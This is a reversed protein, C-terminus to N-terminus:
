IYCAGRMAYTETFKSGVPDVRQRKSYDLDYGDQCWEWVNGHMDYLGFDNPEFQGVPALQGVYGDSTEIFSTYKESVCEISKRQQPGIKYQKGAARVFLDGSAANNIINLRNTGILNPEYYTSDGKWRGDDRYFSLRRGQDTTLYEWKPDGGQEQETFYELQLDFPTKTASPGFRRMEGKPLVINERDSKLKLNDFGSDNQVVITRIINNDDNYKYTPYLGTTGDGGKFTISEVTAACLISVIESGGDWSVVVDFQHYQARNPVNAFRALEDIDDGFFFRDDSGARCAYEWEAQTPLRVTRGEKKTLWKCFAQADEWSVITVPFNDSAGVHGSNDWSTAAEDTTPLIPSERLTGREVSTRYDTDEAFQRFQGITVEHIGMYFPKSIEVGHRPYSGDSSGDEGPFERKIDEPSDKSGMMFEGAPIISFGMGISNEFWLSGIDWSASESSGRLVPTQSKGGLENSVFKKTKTRSHFILGDLNIRGNDYLSQPASGSLYDIVYYSFVSHNLEPHEWSKEGTSCSFLTYTGKPSTRENEFVSGLDLLKASGSKDGVSSLVDNRCADVILLKREAKSQKFLSMVDSLKVLSDPDSPDADEPCFYHEKIGDVANESAFQIGHGSLTVILTDSPSLGRAKNRIATLIKKSTNPKLATSRSDSTMLSVDFGLRTLASGICDADEKAYDLNRFFSPDYTEVGVVVAFRQQAIALQSGIACALIAVVLCRFRKM